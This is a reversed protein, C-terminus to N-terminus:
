RPEPLGVGSGQAHIGRGRCSRRLPQHFRGCWEWSGRPLLGRVLVDRQAPPVFGGEAAWRDLELEVATASPGAEATVRRVFEAVSGSEIGDYRRIAVYM